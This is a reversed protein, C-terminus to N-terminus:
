LSIGRVPFDLGSMWASWSARSSWALFCAASSLSHLDDMESSSPQSWLDQCCGVAQVEPRLRPDRGVWMSLIVVWGGSVMTSWYSRDEGHWVALVFRYRCFYFFVPVCSPGEWTTGYLPPPKTCSRAFGLFIEWSREGELLFCARYRVFWHLESLGISRSSGRIWGLPCVSHILFGTVTFHTM